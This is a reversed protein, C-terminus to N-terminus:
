RLKEIVQLLEREARSLTDVVPSAPKDDEAAAPKRLHHQGQLAQQPEAGYGPDPDQGHQGV